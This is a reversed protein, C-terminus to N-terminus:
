AADPRQPRRYEAARLQAPFRQGQQEFTAHLGAIAEACSAALTTQWSGRRVWSLATMVGRVLPNSIVTYSGLMLHVSEASVVDGREALLRRVMPDPRGADSADNILGYGTKTAAFGGLTEGLWDFYREVLATNPAGFWTSIVIPEHRTDVVVAASGDAFTQLQPPEGPMKAPRQWSAGRM